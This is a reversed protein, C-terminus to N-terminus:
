SVAVALNRFESEPVVEPPPAPASVPAFILTVYKDSDMTIVRTEGAGSIDGGWQTFKWGAAPHATLTVATGAAYAKQNPSRTVYGQGFEVLTELSYYIPTPGPAPEPEVPPSIVYPYVIEGTAPNVIVTQLPGYSVRLWNDNLVVDAPLLGISLVEAWILKRLDWTAPGPKVLGLTVTTV